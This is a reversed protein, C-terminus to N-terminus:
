LSPSVQAPAILAWRRRTHELLRQDALALAADHGALNFYALELRGTVAQADGVTGVGKFSAGGATDALWQVELRLRSGPPVFQGYKVNRAEKLVAMSCAFGRRHHMLWGAAQVLAELMLVGPLVPFSPFHDGLYEEALTVQKVGVLRQPELCEIHDLLNFKM